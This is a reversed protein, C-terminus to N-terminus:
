PTSSLIQFIKCSIAVQEAVTIRRLYNKELITVRHGILYQILHRPIDLSDVLNCYAHRAFYFTVKRDSLFGYHSCIASNMSVTMKHFFNALRAQRQELTYNKKKDFCPILYDDSRKGKSLAKIIHKIPSLATAISVPIGTKQRLTKITVIEVNKGDGFDDITPNFGSSLTSFKLDRIKLAALDTPALGQFAIDLIFLALSLTDDKKIHPDNKLKHNFLLFIDKLNKESLSRDSPFLPYAPLKPCFNRSICGNNKGLNIVANFRAVHLHRMSSTSPYDEELKKKFQDIFEYSIENLDPGDG